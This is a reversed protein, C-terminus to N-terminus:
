ARKKPMAPTLASRLSDIALQAEDSRAIVAALTKRVVSPAVDLDDAAARILDHADRRPRRAALARHAEHANSFCRGHRAGAV